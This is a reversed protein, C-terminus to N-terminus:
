HPEDAPDGDDWAYYSTKEPEDERLVQILLRDLFQLKADLEADYSANILEGYPLKVLKDYARFADKKELLLQKASAIWRIRADRDLEGVSLARMKIPDRLIMHEPGIGQIWLRLAKYGRGTLKLVETDRTRGGPECLLMGRELMRRVLPYLSGKSTNQITLPSRQFARLLQYRTMPQRRAIVGLVTGEPENVVLDAADTLPDDRM